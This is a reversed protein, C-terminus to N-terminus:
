CGGTGIRDDEPQYHAVCGRTELPLPALRQVNYQQRIVRDAQTFADDLGSGQRDHFKRMIVNTGIEEHLPMSGESAAELPDLVAPLPEYEVAIMDVADRALHRTEAVVVAVTQGVFFVKGQALTPLGPAQLEDMEWEELVRPPIETLVGAIDEGILVAVVGPMSRAESADIARIRAHAHPSRLFSAYLMGPLKVDDVFVGMGTVLRPDEFRKLAQGTYTM